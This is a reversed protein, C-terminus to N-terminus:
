WRRARASSRCSRRHQADAARRRARGVHRRVDLVALEDRAVIRHALRGSARRRRAARPGSARSSATSSRSPSSARTTPPATRLASSPTGSPSMSMAVVASGCSTIRRASAAPKLATGVPMSCPVTVTTISPRGNSTVVSRSSTSVKPRWALTRNPRSQFRSASRRSKVM